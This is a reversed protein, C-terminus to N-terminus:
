PRPAAKPAQYAVLGNICAALVLFVGFPVAMPGLLGESMLGGGAIGAGTAAGLLAVRLATPRGIRGTLHAFLFLAFSLCVALIAAAGILISALMPDVSQM